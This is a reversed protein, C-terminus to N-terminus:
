RRRSMFEPVMDKRRRAKRRRPLKGAAQWVPNRHRSVTQDQQLVTGRSQTTSLGLALVRFPGQPKDEASYQGLSNMQTSIEGLKANWRSGGRIAIDCIRWHTRPWQISWGWICIRTLANHFQVTLTKFSLTKNTPSM